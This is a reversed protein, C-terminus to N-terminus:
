PTGLRAITGSVDAANILQDQNADAGPFGPFRGEPASIRQVTDGDGDFIEAILDTVDQSDVHGNGNIDGHILEGELQCISSCGDGDNTNGDDCTEPPETQSNGCLPCPQLSGDVSTIAAPTVTGFVVPEFVPTGNYVLENRGNRNEARMTGLVAVAAEDLGNHGRGVLHNVGNGGQSSLLATAGPACVPNNLGCVTVICARADIRGGESNSGNTIMQGSLAVDGESVINVTGGRGSSSSANVDGVVDVPGTSTFEVDGGGPTRCRDGGNCDDDNNCQTRFVSCVKAGGGQGRVDIDGNVTIGTQSDISVMGGDTEAGSGVGNIAADILVSGAEATLV